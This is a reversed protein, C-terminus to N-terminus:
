NVRSLITDIIQKEAPTVKGVGDATKLLDITNPNLYEDFLGGELARQLKNSFKEEATKETSFFGVALDLHKSKKIELKEDIKEIASAVKIADDSTKIKEVMSDVVKKVQEPYNQYRSYMATKMQKFSSPTFSSYEFVGTPINVKLEEARKVLTLAIEKRTKVPLARAQKLFERSSKHLNSVTDIPLKEEFAFLQPFDAQKPLSEDAAKVTYINSTSIL